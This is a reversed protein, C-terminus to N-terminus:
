FPCAERRVVGNRSFTGSRHQADAASLRGLDVSLQQLQRTLSELVLWQGRLITPSDSRYAASLALDYAPGYTRPLGRRILVSKCSEDTFAARQVLIGKAELWKEINFDVSYFPHLPMAVQFESPKRPVIELNTKWYREFRETDRFSRWGRLHFEGDEFRGYVMRALGECIDIGVAITNKM